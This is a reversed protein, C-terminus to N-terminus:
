GEKQVARLLPVIGAKADMLETFQVLTEIAEYAQKRFAIAEDRSVRGDALAKGAEAMVDGFETAAKGAAEIVDVNAASAKPLEIYVGGTAEAFYRVLSKNRTAMTLAVVKAANLPHTEDYASLAQRLYGERIGMREAIQAVTMRGGHENVSHHGVDDLAKQYDTM